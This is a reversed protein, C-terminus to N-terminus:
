HKIRARAALSVKHAMDPEHDVHDQRSTKVMLLLRSALYLAIAYWILRTTARLNYQLIMVSYLLVVAGLSLQLVTALVGGMRSALLELRSIVAGVGAFYLVLTAAGHVALEGVTSFPTYVNFRLVPVLASWDTLPSPLPTLSTVLASPPLASVHTALVGAFPVSSLVNALIGAIGGASGFPLGPNALLASLYPILGAGAVAGRLTLVLELLVVSCAAALVTAPLLRRLRLRRGGYLLFSVLLAIPAVGLMRTDRSLLLLAYVVVLLVAWIRHTRKRTDFLVLGAGALGVPTLADGLSAMWAPGVLDLYQRRSLVEAPGIAAIDLVAPIASVLLLAARPLRSVAQVLDSVRPPSLPSGTARHKGFSGILSGVFVAASAQAFAEAGASYEADGAVLGVPVLASAKGVSVLDRFFLYGTVGVSNLVLIVIFALPLRRGTARRLVLFQFATLVAVGILLLITM